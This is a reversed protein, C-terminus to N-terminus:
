RERVYASPPKGYWGKFARTFASQESYGLAQAIEAITKKRERLYLECADKRAAEVIGRFSAGERALRRRLTRESYGLAAAVKALNPAGRELESQICHFVEETASMPQYLATLASDLRTCLVKLLDPNAQPLPMDVLGPDLEMMDLPARYRVECGFLADCQAAHPPRAHRFHMAAVEKDYLWTLWRGFVAYGAFAAETAPRMREADDIYPRWTIAASDRTVSLHTKGLQQTLAQYKENVALAERLSGASMIAMGVDMFTTPRFDRGAHVGMATDGTLAEALHLMDLVTENPFRRAPNAFPAPDAGIASLLPKSDAGRMICSDYFSRMYHCSVTGLSVEM